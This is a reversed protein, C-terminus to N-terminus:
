NGNYNRITIRFLIRFSTRMSETKMSLLFVCFVVLQVHLNTSNVGSHGRFFFMLENTKCPCRKKEIKVLRVSRISKSNFSFSLLFVRNKKVQGANTTSDEPQDSINLNTSPDIEDASFFNSSNFFSNFLFVRHKRRLLPNIVFSRNTQLGQKSLSIASATKTVSRKEHHHFHPLSIIWNLKSADNEDNIVHKDILTQVVIEVLIQKTKKLSFSKKVIM